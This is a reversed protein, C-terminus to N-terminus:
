FRVSLILNEKHHLALVSHAFFLYGHVGTNVMQVELEEERTSLEKAADVILHELEFVSKKKLDM